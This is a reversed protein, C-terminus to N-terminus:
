LLVLKVSFKLTVAFVVVGRESAGIYLLLKETWDEAPSFCSEEIQRTYLSFFLSDEKGRGKKRKMEKGNKEKGEEKKIKTIHKTVM